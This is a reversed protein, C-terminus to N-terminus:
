GPRSMRTCYIHRARADAPNPSKHPAATLMRFLGSWGQALTPRRGDWPLNQNQLPFPSPQHRAWAPAAEDLDSARYGRESRTPKSAHLRPAGRFDLFLPSQPSRNDKARKDRDQARLATAIEADTWKGIATEPDPTINPM